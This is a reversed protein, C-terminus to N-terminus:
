WNNITKLPKKVYIKSILVLTQEIIEFSLTDIVRRKKKDIKGLM